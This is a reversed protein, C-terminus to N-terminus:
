ALWILLAIVLGLIVLAGGRLLNTSYGRTLEELWLYAKLVVLGAALGALLLGFLRQREQIRQARSLQEIAHLQAPTLTVAYTVEVVRGSRELHKETEERKHIINHARLYAPDPLWTLAAYHRKLYDRVQLCAQAAAEQDADDAREAVGQARGLAVTDTRAQAAVPTRQSLWAAVIVLVCLLDKLRSM